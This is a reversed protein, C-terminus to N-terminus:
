MPDNAQNYARLLTEAHVPSSVPMAARLLTDPTSTPASGARLLVSRPEIVDIAKQAAQILAHHRNHSLKRLVPLARADGLQGMLNVIQVLFPVDEPYLDVARILAPMCSPDNFEALLELGEVRVYRRQSTLRAISARVKPTQKRNTLPHKGQQGERYATWIEEFVSSVLMWMVFGIAAVLGGGVLLNSMLADFASKGM